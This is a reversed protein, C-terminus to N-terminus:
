SKASDERQYGKWAARGNETPYFWYNHILASNIESLPAASEDNTYKAEILGSELLQMVEDVIDRLPYEPSLSNTTEFKSHNICLYVQEVDEADDMM